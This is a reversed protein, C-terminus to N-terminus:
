NKLQKIRKPRDFDEKMEYPLVWVKKCSEDTFYIKSVSLKEPDGDSWFSYFRKSANVPRRAYSNNRESGSTIDKRKTWTDGEDNSIWLAMEGGMGYKQPGPESPGIIRWENGNIYLSGMDHNHLSQCVKSFCWKNDKMHVIIWERPDGTPGPRFDHSTMILIVPNGRSDFNLDKIYVLKGEAEYDKLLAKNQVTSIPIEITKNDVTKWTKGFDETFILYLNTQKDSLGGPFNSFASVVKKGNCGTVQNHGGITAIKKGETWTKGDSSSACYLERVKLFKTYMMVFCSDKVLWPQPFVFEGEFIKDFNGISYPLTSKYIIGPRTRGMGSVFVLIYGHPDISITANDQPDDVGNKDCVIVPKPVMGTKHDFYSVMIQLHSEAENTTGGYVFFTKDAKAAYIAVPNHQASSTGLGGSYKYGYEPSKVSASWLGRYGNETQNQARLVQSLLLLSIAMISIFANKSIIM